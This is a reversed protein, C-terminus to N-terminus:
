RQKKRILKRCMKNFKGGYIYEISKSSLLKNEVAYHNWKKESPIKNTERLYKKLEELSKEYINMKRGSCKIYTQLIWM